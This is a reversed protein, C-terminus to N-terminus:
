EGGSEIEPKIDYLHEEENILLIIVTLYAKILRNMEWINMLFINENM